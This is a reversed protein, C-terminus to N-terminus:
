YSCLCLMLHISASWAFISQFSNPNVKEQIGILKPIM